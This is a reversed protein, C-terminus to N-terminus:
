GKAFARQRNRWMQAELRYRLIWELCGYRLATQLREFWPIPAPHYGLKILVSRCRDNARFCDSIVADLTSPEAFLSDFLRTLAQVALGQGWHPPALNWGCYCQQRSNAQWTFQTIYGAVEDDLAITSCRFAAHMTRWDGSLKQRWAELTGGSGVRFQQPQVLPNTQIQVIAPLDAEVTDRVVLNM